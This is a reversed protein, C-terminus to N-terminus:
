KDTLKRFDAGSPEQFVRLGFEQISAIVHDFIDAQIAEYEAWSQIKSFVYIEMPIGKESPDLQRVLFTMDGNIEPKRRLYEILYARFIGLNTQRRGNVLVSNDIKHTENHALLEEEKKEIYEKLVHIKRFRELQEQSTFSVSNMDINIARKIRRGGSEEMGRWNKVSESVLAYTPITSITKDWNQVKVTTLSIDIVTGDANHKPLSIWDGEKVMDLAALQIGGVFGLITDKFILLIIASAAGLGAFIAGPQKGLLYSFIIIATVIYVLMKLVQSFGKLPLRKNKVVVEIIKTLVNIIASITIAVIIAIYVDLMLKLTALLSPLDALIHDVSYDILYAPALYSAYHFVKFKLLLDDWENSTKSIVQHVIARLLYRVVFFLIVALVIAILLESYNAYEISKAHSLGLYQYFEFLYTDFYDYFSNLM